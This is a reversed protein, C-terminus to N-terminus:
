QIANLIILHYYIFYIKKFITDPIYVSSYKNVVSMTKNYAQIKIMTDDYLGVITKNRKQRHYEMITRYNNRLENFFLNFLRLEINDENIEKNRCCNGM